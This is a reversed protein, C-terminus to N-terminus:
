AMSFLHGGVQETETYVRLRTRRPVEEVLERRVGLTSM